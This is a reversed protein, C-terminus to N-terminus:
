KMPDDTKIRPLIEPAFNPIGTVRLAEGETLTDGIRLSGYNPIGIIDGPRAEGRPQSRAGLLVSPGAGVNPPRHPHEEIEHRAPLPGLRHGV